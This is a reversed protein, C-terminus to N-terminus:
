KFLEKPWRRHLWLWEDPRARIWRELCDNMAQTLAAIDAARNGTEPLTLPAEVIIRFRAPGLREAHAPLLPCRFRLALAAGASATMAPHGFLTAAIGDNMKQDALMALVGGARLHALAGRAGEQGKPFMPADAGIARRRVATIMRDAIPNRAARYFVAPPAGFTAAAPTLLEWNGIHGSFMLAPGGARRLPQLYAAGEIEWGPGAPTQRLRSLHPLEAATRGLNDWVGRIVARRRGASLGPLALRLNADAVRSVPLLPGISRAVFGGLNSAAVPTLLGVLRIALWLAVAELRFALDRWRM